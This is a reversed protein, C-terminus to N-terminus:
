SSRSNLLCCHNWQCSPNGKEEAQALKYSKKHIKDGHMWKTEKWIRRSQSGEVMVGTRFFFYGQGTTLEAQRYLNLQPWPVSPGHLPPAWHPDALEWCWTAPRGTGTPHWSKRGSSGASWGKLCDGTGTCTGPVKGGSHLDTNNRICVSTEYQKGSRHHKIHWRKADHASLNSKPQSTITIFQAACKYM